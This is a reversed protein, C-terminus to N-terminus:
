VRSLLRKFSAHVRLYHAIDHHKSRQFVFRSAGVLVITREFSSYPSLFVLRL